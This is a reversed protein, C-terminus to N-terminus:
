VNVCSANKGSLEDTYVFMKDSVQDVEVQPGRFDFVLDYCAVTADLADAFDWLMKLLDVFGNPLNGLFSQDVKRDATTGVNALRLTQVQIQGVWLVALHRGHVEVGPLM